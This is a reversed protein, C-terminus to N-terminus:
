EIVEDARIFLAPPITLGLSKATKANVVLEFKSPQEVPLDGPKAGRLIKVAIMACQQWMGVLSPGYSVLGGAEAHEKWQYIAPLRHEAALTIIEQYLSAMFPSSFVNLGDAKEIMAANFAAVLDERRRIELIQLKINLLRAADETATIQSPAASADRLAAVRSLGPILDRLVDLRKANLEPSLITLGTTMGEPHSLSRVIGAGLVDDSM